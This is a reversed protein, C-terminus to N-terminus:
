FNNIKLILQHIKKIILQYFHDTLGIHQYFQNLKIGEM